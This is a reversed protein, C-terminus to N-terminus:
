VLLRHKFAFSELVSNVWAKTSPIDMWGNASSAIVCRNKLEKNLAESERQTGKFVIMPPLKTGDAKTSLCVSVARKM